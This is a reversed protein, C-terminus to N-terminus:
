KLRAAWRCWGHLCGGEGVLAVCIVAGQRLVVASEHLVKCIVM